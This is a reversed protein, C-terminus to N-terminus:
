ASTMAANPVGLVHSDPRFNIRPDHSRVGLDLASLCM